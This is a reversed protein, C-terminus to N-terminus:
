VVLVVRAGVAPDAKAVAQGRRPQGCMCVCCAVGQSRCCFVIMIILLTLGVIAGVVGGVIAGTLDTAQYSGSSSWAHCKGDSTLPNTFMRAGASCGSDSYFTIDSKTSISSPNLFNCSGAGGVCVSCAGSTTSWSTCQVSCSSDSCVKMILPQASSAVCLLALLAVRTTM